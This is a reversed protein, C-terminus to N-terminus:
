CSKNKVLYREVMRALEFMFSAKGPIAVLLGAVGLSNEDFLSPRVNPENDLSLETKICSVIKQPERKSIEPFCKAIENKLQEVSNKSPSGLDVDTVLDFDTGAAITRGQFPVITVDKEKEDCDRVDLCTTIGPVLEGEYELVISKKLVLRNELANIQSKTLIENSWAGTALICLDFDIVSRDSLVAATARGGNIRLCEITKECSVNGGKLAVDNKLKEILRPFDVIRDPVEFGGVARTPFTKSGCYEREELIRWPLGWSSVNWDNWDAQRHALTDHDLALFRTPVQRALFQKFIKERQYSDWMDEALKRDPYLLGSHNWKQNTFSSGEGENRFVLTIPYRLSALKRAIAAGAVGAGIM